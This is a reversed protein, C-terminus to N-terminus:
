READARTIRVRNIDRVYSFYELM